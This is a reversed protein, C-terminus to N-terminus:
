LCNGTTLHEAYPRGFCAILGDVVALNPPWRRPPPLTRAEPAAGPQASPTPLSALASRASLLAARDNALFAVTADVYLNWGMDVRLENPPHRASQLLAIAAPHDGSAARMQGEHWRLISAHSPHAARWRAILEAAERYCGHRSLLRWGKGPTQDFAGEDLALMAASDVACLDLPPSVDSVQWLAAALLAFLAPRDM